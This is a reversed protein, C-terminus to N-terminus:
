RSFMCMHLKSTLVYILEVDFTKQHTNAPFLLPDPTYNLPDLCFCLAAYGLPSLSEAEPSTERVATSELFGLAPSVFVSSREKLKVGFPVGTIRSWSSLTILLCASFEQAWTEMVTVVCNVRLHCVPENLGGQGM